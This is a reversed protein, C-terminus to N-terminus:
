ARAARQLANISWWQDLRIQSSIRGTQWLAVIARYRARVRYRARRTPARANRPHPQPNVELDSGIKSLM